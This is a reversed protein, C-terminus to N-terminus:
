LDSLERALCSLCHPVGAMACTPLRGPPLVRFKLHLAATVLLDAFIARGGPAHNKGHGFGHGYVTPVAVLELFLKTFIM